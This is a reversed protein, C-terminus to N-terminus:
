LGWESYEVKDGFFSCFYYIYVFDLNRRKGTARGNTMAQAFVRSSDVGSPNSVLKNMNKTLYM